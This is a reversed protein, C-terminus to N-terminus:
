TSLPATTRIQAVTEAPRPWTSPRATTRISRWSTSRAGPAPQFQGSSLVLQSIGTASTSMVTPIDSPVHAIVGNLNYADNGASAVILTGNKNAFQAVRNWALWSANSGKDSRLLTGGLSMNIV